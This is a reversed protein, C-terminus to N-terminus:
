NFINCFFKAANCSGAIYGKINLILDSVQDILIPVLIALSIVLVLLLILFLISITLPRSMRFRNEAYDIIPNFLYAMGLALLVPMFVSQLYYGFWFVSVVLLIWILDRVPRLQWLHRDAWIPMPQKGPQNM